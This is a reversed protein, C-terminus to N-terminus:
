QALRGGDVVLDAGTMFRARDSAVFAVSAAIDADSCPHGLPTEGAGPLVINVRIGEPGLELAAARALLRLGQRVTDFARQDSAPAVFVVSGGGAARVEAAGRRLDRFAAALPDGVQASFAAINTESIASAAPADAILVVIGRDGSGLTPDDRVRVGDATLAARVAHNLNAAGGIIVGAPRPATADEM